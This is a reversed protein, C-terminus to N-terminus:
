HGAGVVQCAVCVCVCMLIVLFINPFYFLNKQNKKIRDKNPVSLCILRITIDCLASIAWMHMQKNQFFSVTAWHALRVAFLPNIM